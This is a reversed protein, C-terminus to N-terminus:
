MPLHLRLWWPLELKEGKQHHPDSFLVDHYQLDSAQSFRLICLLTEVLLMLSECWRLVQINKDLKESKM